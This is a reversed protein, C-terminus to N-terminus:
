REARLHPPMHLSFFANQFFFGDSRGFVTEHLFDPLETLM